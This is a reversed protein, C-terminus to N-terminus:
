PRGDGTVPRDATTSRDGTKPRETQRKPARRRRKHQLRGRQSKARVCAELYNIFGGIQAKTRRAVEYLADFEATTIQKAARAVHLHSQFETESRKAIKLFRIFEPDYGAEYGEAINAMGSDAARQMQDKLDVRTFGASLVQFTESLERASQWADIDEIRTITTM